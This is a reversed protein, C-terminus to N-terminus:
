NPTGGGDKVDVRSLAAAASPFKARFQEVTLETGRTLASRTTYVSAPRWAKGDFVLGSNWDLVVIARDEYEFLKM